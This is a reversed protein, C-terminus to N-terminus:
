RVCPWTKGQAAVRGTSMPLPLVRSSRPIQRLDGRKRVRQATQRPSLAAGATRATQLSHRARAYWAVPSRRASAWVTGIEGRARPYASNPSLFWVLHRGAPCPLAKEVFGSRARSTFVQCQGQPPSMSRRVNRLPAPVSAAAASPKSPVAAWRPYTGLRRSPLVPTLSEIMPAFPITTFVSGSSARRITM